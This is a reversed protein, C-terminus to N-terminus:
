RFQGRFFQLVSDLLSKNLRSDPKKTQPFNNSPPLLKLRSLASASFDEVPAPNLKLVAIDDVLGVMMLRFAVMQIEQIPQNLQAAMTKLSTLSDAKKWVQWEVFLLRLHPRSVLRMLGYNPPPFDPAFLQWNKSLRLAHMTVETARISNGTMELWPIRMLRDQLESLEEFRFKGSSLEFLQYVKHLQIQFILNSQELTLLKMNVLYTGLPMEPPCLTRLQKTVLPSLCGRNEILSILGKYNFRDSIAVLKGEQFWIYYISKITGTKATSPLHLLLRGSKSNSDILRFLDPLSFLELSSSISM